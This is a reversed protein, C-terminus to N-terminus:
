NRYIEASKNVLIGPVFLHHLYVLRLGLLVLKHVLFREEIIRSDGALQHTYKNEKIRCAM